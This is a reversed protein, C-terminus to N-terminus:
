KTALAEVRLNRHAFSILMNDWMGAAPSNSAGPCVPGSRHVRGLSRGDLGSPFNGSILASFQQHVALIAPDPLAVGM